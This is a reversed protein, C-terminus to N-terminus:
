KAVGARQLAAKWVAKAFSTLGWAGASYGAAGGPMASVIANLDASTPEPAEFSAATRQALRAELYAYATSLAQRGRVLEARAARLQENEKQLEFVERASTAVEASLRQNDALLRKNEALLEKKATAADALEETMFQAVRTLARRRAESDQAAQLVGTLAHEQISARLLETLKAAEATDVSLALRVPQPAERLQSIELAMAHAETIADGHHCSIWDTGELLARRQGDTVIKYVLTICEQSKAESM